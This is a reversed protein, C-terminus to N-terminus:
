RTNASLEAVPVFPNSTSLPNDYLGAPPIIVLVDKAPLKIPSTFDVPPCVTKSLPLSPVFAKKLPSMLAVPPVVTKFLPVLPFSAVNAPSTVPSKVPSTTPLTTPSRVPSM